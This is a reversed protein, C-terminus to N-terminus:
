EGVETLARVLEVVREANPESPERHTMGAHYVEHGDKRVSVAVFDEDLYDSYWPTFMVEYGGVEYRM